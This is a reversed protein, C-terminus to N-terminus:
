KNEVPYKEVNKDLIEEVIQRVDWELDSCLLLSYILVNAM